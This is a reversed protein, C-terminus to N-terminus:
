RDDSTSAAEASLLLHGRRLPSSHPKNYKMDTNFRRLTKMRLISYCNSYCHNFNAASIRNKRAKKSLFVTIQTIERNGRDERHERHHRLGNIIM